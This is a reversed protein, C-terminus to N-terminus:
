RSRKASGRIGAKAGKAAALLRANVSDSSPVNSPVSGAGPMGGLLSSDGTAMARVEAANFLSAGRVVSKYQDSKMQRGRLVAQSTAGYLAQTGVVSGQYNATAGKSVGMREGAAFSDINAGAFVFLWGGEETQDKILGKVRESTWERSANEQGDTHAVVIVKSPRKAQPLGDIRAALGSCARGLADYLATDGGPFCVTATLAPVDALPMDVFVEKYTNDFLVLSVFCPSKLARQEDMMKNFGGIVAPLMSSMSGSRDLVFLIHTIEDSTEKKAKPM